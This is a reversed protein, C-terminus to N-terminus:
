DLLDQDLLWKCFARLDRLHAHIGSESRQAQGHQPKAPTVRLWRAFREMVETSLVANTRPLGEAELSRGFLLFTYHYRAQTGTARGVAAQYHRFREILEDLHFTDM